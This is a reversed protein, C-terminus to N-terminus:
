NSRVRFFRGREDPQIPYVFTGAIQTGMGAAAVTWPGNASPSSEISYPKGTAVPFVLVFERGPPEGARMRFRLRQDSVNPANPTAAAVEWGGRAGIRSYAQDSQLPPVEVADVTVYAGSPTRQQLYIRDGGASIGFAAHFPGQGPNNDCLVLVTQGPQLVTGPPFLFREAADLGRDILAYGDLTVPEGSVNGIEVYDPTGM